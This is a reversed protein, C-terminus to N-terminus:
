AFVGHLYWGGTQREQFIWLKAGSGQRVVYYDRAVGKGDWWGSEIREPEAEPAPGAQRWSALERETLRLPEDLLWVPRPMGEPPLAGPPATAAAPRLERVRRWAAEPRHEAISALGYVAEDGLRARLREVLQVATDRAGGGCGTFIDLSAAPLGELFGSVLEVSRVPAALELRQLQQALVDHLRRRESTVNALGLQLRTLPHTRHRLRLELRQVGAQRDRLFAACRGVVPELARELYAVQEIEAEFDCRERFRRRPVCARRPAPQKALAVDLDFVAGKGLRRALGARPLRLVAGIQTIGMARLTQLRQPDWATCSLPLPSLLGPLRAPEEICAAEGARAFWLAALTSPAVASCVPVSLARWCADIDAHLRQLPGFLKLSGNIELLLCDPAEISVVSTYRFALLSLRELIQAARADGALGPFLAAYWLPSKRAAPAAAPLPAPAPMPVSRAPPTAVAPATTAAFLDATRTKAGRAKM